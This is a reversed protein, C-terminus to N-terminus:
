KNELRDIKNSLEKIAEILLAVLKDYKVAKYGNDRTQVLQPLVAEIEQAIVGVDNGEFGHFQKMDSKWDYTNGSIKSIKELANAIPTINEKFNKDSTSFAVIDGSADIRGATESAAMGIGLSGSIGVNGGLYHSSGTAYLGYNVGGGSVITTNTFYGAYTNQGSSVSGSIGSTFVATPYGAVPVASIKVSAATYQAPDYYTGQAFRTEGIFTHFSATAYIGYSEGTGSSVAINSFYGAYSNYNITSSGSMRSVVVASSASLTPTASMKLVANTYELPDNYVGKFLKNEGIASIPGTFSGSVTVRLSGTIEQTGNFSNSGTIAYGLLTIQSSGSFLTKTASARGEYTTALSSTVTEISTLRSNQATNTTDNSGTYTNLSSLIGIVQASGSILTTTTSNISGTVNLNGYVDLGLGTDLGIVSPQSSRLSLVNKTTGDTKSIYFDLKNYNQVSSDHGSWISHTLNNTLGPYSFILGQSGVATNIGSQLIVKGSFNGKAITPTAATGVGISNFQYDGTSGSHLNTGGGGGGSGWSGSQSAITAFKSDISSSWTNASTTYANLSTIANSSTFSNLNSVSINVSASTTELNTIRPSFSATALNLSTNANSASFSNLSSTASAIGGFLSTYDSTGAISIQSSGSIIGNTARISGTIGNTVIFSGTITQNGNFSNSGTTAYSQTFSNINAIHGNVSATFTNYSSTVSALTSNKVNLVGISTNISSSLSNISSSISSSVTSVFTYVANQTPTTDQGHIGQSNLLNTDDSVEQLQVGAAVGNRKFPGIANLGSLNFSNANITVEGTLQNVAFFSGIKLNGINDVTSYFIKGPAIQTIERTSIPVGGYFPLANYTIGSGVYEMVLGGTSINSLQYFKIPDGTNVNPPAPYTTVRRLPSSSGSPLTVATVLYNSGSLVMNSSIDIGRSGTQLSVLINSVGSIEALNNTTTAIRAGPGTPTQLTVTPQSTYGSGSNTIKIESISTDANITAYATAQVSYGGGTISVSATQGFTYGAGKDSLIFGTVQSTKTELSSGTNYTAPFYTKSIVGYKGFDIVSNSVNAFGGNATKFGYTCFTTFCSVFQTYGNNIVLHGPGGQNVQTFADAVFSRLPSTASCLNGDIRLGGGAGNEDVVEGGGFVNTIDYPLPTTVPIKVGATTFPGTISSCNQIYPSTSISPRQAAPAPISIHPIETATYNTGGTFTIATIQGSANTNVRATPVSGSADPGEVIIGVDLGTQNATYGSLSHIISASTITGGSITPKVTSAPFSCAFAPYQLDLFRVGNIYNGDHLHFFDKTPNAATLRVTRLNDGVISLGPHLTIPNQEVYEGSGVFITYRKQVFPSVSGLSAVAAAITKFPIHPELGTNSDSGSPSVYLRKSGSMAEELLDLRLDLSTSFTTVGENIGSISGSFSGSISKAYINRYRFSVSGLDFANDNNPIISSSLDANVVLNDSTTDGITITGGITVDGTVNFNGINPQNLKALTVTTSGSGIQLSGTTQNLYLEGEQLSTETTGRRIQFIAAM